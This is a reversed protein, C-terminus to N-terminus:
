INFIGLSDNENNSKFCYDFLDSKILSQKLNDSINSLVVKGNFRSVVNSVKIISDIGIKSVYKVNSLNINVKNLELCLIIPIVRNEFANIRGSIFSGDLRVFLIGKKLEINTKM